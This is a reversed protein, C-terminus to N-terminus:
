SDDSRRRLVVYQLKGTSVAIPEFRGAMSSMQSIHHEVWRSFQSHTWPDVLPAGDHLLLVLTDVHRADLLAPAIPKSTHGGDLAAIGPDTVGALDVITADTTAGLWGIDVAAVVKASALPERLQDIVALRKPGVAAASPGIKVLQFCTGALALLLRPASIRWDGRGVIYAAAIIVTPLVVVSLRALPMWDGGAAVLALYHVLAAVQLGRIWPPLKRFAILAVPGTLLFCAAAYVAGHTLDSPKAILALPAFRGFIIVRVLGALLFPAVAIGFPIWRTSFANGKTPALALAIAWPLTEPRLGAVVGALLIALQEREFVRASVSLAALGLVFGTEMGAVSWAGLPALTAVLALAAWKLRGVDLNDIAVGIAAAGTLWSLLGIWKAAAMAALTGGRAFPALLFAWGLPTVGDSVPGAANFRYGHGAAINFAYRASIFADDVMFHWLFIALPLAAAIGASAAILRRRM